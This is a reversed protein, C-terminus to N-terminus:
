RQREVRWTGTQLEGSAGVRTEFTGDIADTDLTGLFRTEVQCACAPDTYPAITGELKGADVSVFEIQLPTGGGLLVPGTATHRGLELEFEIPGERGSELGHYDGRWSGALRALEEPDGSKVEVDKKSGACAAVTLGGAALTAATTVTLLSRVLARM